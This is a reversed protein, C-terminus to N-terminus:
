FFLHSLFNGKNSVLRQRLLVRAPDGSRGRQFCCVTTLEESRYCVHYVLLYFPCCCYVCVKFKNRHRTLHQKSTTRLLKKTNFITYQVASRVWSQFHARRYLFMKTLTYRYTHCLFGLSFWIQIVSVSVKLFQIHLNTFLQTLTM